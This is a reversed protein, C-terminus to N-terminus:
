KVISNCYCCRKSLDGTCAIRMMRLPRRNIAELSMLLKYTWWLASCIMKWNESRLFGSWGFANARFRNTAALRLILHCLCNWQLKIVQWAQKVLSHRHPARSHEILKSMLSTGQVEGRRRQLELAAGRHTYMVEARWDNYSRIASVEPKTSITLLGWCRVYANAKSDKLISVGSKSGDEMQFFNHMLRLSYMGYFDLRHTLSWAWSFWRSLCFASSSRAGNVRCFIRM